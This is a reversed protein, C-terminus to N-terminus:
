YEFIRTKVELVSWPPVTSYHLYPHTISARHLLPPVTSYHIFLPTISTRHLLPHVTSYHLYPPTISARHLSPPVTSYHLYLPTISARHHLPYRPAQELLGSHIGCSTCTGFGVVSTVPLSTVSEAVLTQEQQINLVRTYYSHSSFRHFSNNIIIPLYIPVYIHVSLFLTASLFAYSDRSCIVLFFLCIFKDQLLFVKERNYRKLRFCTFEEFAFIPVLSLSHLVFLSSHFAFLSLFSLSLCSILRSFYALAM